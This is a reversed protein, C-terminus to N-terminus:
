DTINNYPNSTFDLYRYEGSQILQLVTALPDDSFIHPDIGYELSRGHRNTTHIADYQIVISSNPLRHFLRGGGTGGGTTNGVLTALGMDQVRDAIHVTASGGGDILLWVKGSFVPTITEYGNKCVIRPATVEVVNKFGYNFIGKDNLHMHLLEHGYIELLQGIPIIESTCLITFLARGDGHTFGNIAAQLSIAFNFNIYTHDESMLPLILENFFFDLHGGSNRRIDIILHEYDAISAYFNSIVYSLEHRQEELVESASFSNVSMYAVKGPEISEIRMREDIPILREHHRPRSDFDSLPLAWIHGTSRLPRMFEDQIMRLFSTYHINGTTTTINDISELFQAELVDINIGLHRYAFDFYPFNEHLMNVMHEFDRRINEVSVVARSTNPPQRFRTTYLGRLQNENPQTSAFIRVWEAREIDCSIRELFRREWNVDLPGAPQHPLAVGTLRFLLFLLTCLVAVLLIIIKKRPNSEVPEYV